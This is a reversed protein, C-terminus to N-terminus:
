EAGGEGVGGEAKLVGVSAEPFGADQGDIEDLGLLFGAAIVNKLFDKLGLNRNFGVQLKDNSVAAGGREFHEQGEQEIRDGINDCSTTEKISNM